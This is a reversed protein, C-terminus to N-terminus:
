CIPFFFVGDLNRIGSDTVQLVELGGPFQFSEISTLESHYSMSLVKICSPLDGLDTLSSIATDSLQLSRLHLHSNLWNRISLMCLPNEGLWLEEYNVPLHLNM